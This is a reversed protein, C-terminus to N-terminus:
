IGSMDPMDEDESEPESRFRPNSNGALPESSPGAGGSPQPAPTDSPRQFTAMVRARKRAKKSLPAGSGGQAPPGAPPAASGFVSVYDSFPGAGCASAACRGKIRGRLPSKKPQSQLFQKNEKIKPSRESCSASGGGGYRLARVTSSAPSSAFQLRHAFGPLIAIEFLPRQSGCRRAATALWLEPMWAYMSAHVVCASLKVAAAYIMTNARVCAVLAHAELLRLRCQLSTRIVLLMASGAGRMAHVARVVREGGTTPREKEVRRLVNQEASPM